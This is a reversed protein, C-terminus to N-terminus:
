KQNIKALITSAKRLLHSCDEELIDSIKQQISQASNCGKNFSNSAPSIDANTDLWPESPPTVAAASDVQIRELHDEISKFSDIIQILGGDLVQLNPVLTLIKNLYAPLNCVPNCHENEVGKLVLSRLFSVKSLEEIDNLSSIQNGKM